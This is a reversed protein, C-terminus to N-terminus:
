AGARLLRPLDHRQRRCSQSGPRASLAVEGRSTNSTGCINYDYVALGIYDVADDGPYLREFPLGAADLTVNPEWEFEFSPEEAEMVQVVHRYAAKYDEVATPVVRWPLTNGNM